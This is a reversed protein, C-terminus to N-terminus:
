LQINLEIKINVEIIYTYEMSFIMDVKLGAISPVEDFGDFSHCVLTTNNEHGSVTELIDPEVIMLEEDHSADVILNVPDVMQPMADDDEDLLNEFENVDTPDLNEIGKKDRQANRFKIAKKLCDIEEVKIQLREYVAGIPTKLAFRRRPKRNENGCERYNRPIRIRSKEIYKKADAITDSYRFPVSCHVHLMFLFEFLDFRGCIKMVYGEYCAVKTADFNESPELSFDPKTSKDPSYFVKTLDHSRNGYNRNNADCLSECWATKIIQFTECNKLIVCAPMKDIKRYIKHTFVIIRNQPRARTDVSHLKNRLIFTM